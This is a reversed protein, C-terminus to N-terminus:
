VELLRCRLRHGLPSWYSHTVHYREGAEDVIIDRAKIKGQAVAHRPIFIDWSGTASTDAPLPNHREGAGGKLQISAPINRLVTTEDSPDVGGYGLTAVVAPARPLAAHSNPRRVDIKRPYLFSM